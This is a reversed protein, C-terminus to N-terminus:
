HTRCRAQQTHDTHGPLWLCILLIWLYALYLTSVWATPLKASRIAQKGTLGMVLSIVALWSKQPGNTLDDHSASAEEGSCKTIQLNRTGTITNIDICLYNNWKYYLHSDMYYCRRTKNNNNNFRNNRQPQDKQEKDEGLHGQRQIPHDSHSRFKLSVNHSNFSYFLVWFSFCLDAVSCWTHHFKLARM